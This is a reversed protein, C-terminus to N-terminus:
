RTQIEQVVPVLKWTEKFAPAFPRLLDCCQPHQQLNKALLTADTQM